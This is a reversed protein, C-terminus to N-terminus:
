QQTKFKYKATHNCIWFQLTEYLPSSLASVVVGPAARGERPRQEQRHPKCHGRAVNVSQPVLYVHHTPFAGERERGTLVPTQV